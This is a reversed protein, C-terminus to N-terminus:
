GKRKMRAITSKAMAVGVLVGAIGWIAIKILQESIFQEM